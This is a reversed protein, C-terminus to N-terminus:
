NLGCMDSSCGCSTNECSASDGYCANSSFAKGNTTANFTSILKKNNKSDCNPCTVEEGAGSSKHLVEFKM